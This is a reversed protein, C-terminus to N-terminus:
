GGNQNGNGHNKGGERRMNGNNTTSVCLEQKRNFIYGTACDCIADNTTTGIANTL